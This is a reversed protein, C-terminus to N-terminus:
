RKTYAPDTFIEPVEMGSEVATIYLGFLHRDVGQCKQCEGMQTNHSEVAAVLKRHKESNQLLISPSPHSLSSPGHVISFKNHHSFSIHYDCEATVVIHVACVYVTCCVMVESSLMTQICACVCVCMFLCCVKLDPNLMAQVFLVSEETASRTTETRGHYFQRTTATEYTPPPRPLSMYVFLSTSFIM